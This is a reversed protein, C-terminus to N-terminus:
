QASEVSLVAASKASYERLDNRHPKSSGDRVPPSTSSVFYEIIRVCGASRRWPTCGCHSVMEVHSAIV